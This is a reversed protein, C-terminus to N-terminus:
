LTKQLSFSFFELRGIFHFSHLLVALPKIEEGSLYREKGYTSVPAPSTRRVSPPWHKELALQSCSPFTQCGPPRDPKPHESGLGWAGARGTPASAEGPPQEPAWSSIQSICSLGSLGDWIQQRCDRDFEARSLPPRECGPSPLRASEGAESKVIGGWKWGEIFPLLMLSGLSFLTAKSPLPFM